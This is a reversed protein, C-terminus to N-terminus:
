PGVIVILFAEIVLQDVMEPFETCDSKIKGTRQDNRVGRLCECYCM